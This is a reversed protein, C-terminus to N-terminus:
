SRALLNAVTSISTSVISIVFSGADGWRCQAEVLGFSEDVGGSGVAALPAVGPLHDAPDREDPDGLLDPEAEFLDARRHGRQGVTTRGGPSQSRSEDSHRGRISCWIPTSSRNRSRNVPQMPQPHREICAHLSRLGPSSAATRPGPGRYTSSSLQRHAGRDFGFTSTPAERRGAYRGSSTTVYRPSQAGRDTLLQCALGRGERLIGLLLHESTIERSGLRLAERLALEFSAKARPSFPIHARDCRPPRTAATGVGRGGGADILGRCQMM